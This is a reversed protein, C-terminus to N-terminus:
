LLSPLPLVFAEDAAKVNSFSQTSVDNIQVRASSLAQDLQMTLSLKAAMMARDTNVIGSSAVKGKLFDKLDSTEMLIKKLDSNSLNPNADTLLAAVNAVFPSAQSTGSVTLTQNGPIASLIGVGPAAVDVMTEGYNSFSAIKQYALTAAVTITNPMRLNAPSTPLVDNNMGDNGAAIVFLTDKAANPMAKSAEVAQNVFYASYTDLEEETPERRLALKLLTPMIMVKVAHTSTGFSCNAVRAKGKGVYQGITGLMKSQQTALGKLAMKLVADIKSDVGTFQASYQDFLKKFQRAKPSIPPKTPIIKLVMVEALDANKATIGAVHTGHVFNGFTGLEAILQQNGRAATMWERDSDTAEGKMMRTQVEFFKYVDASFTGLYKKDYLKNNNEAFNWGNVDDILGNDDNDVADDIDKANFWKKNKLDNHSLDTGSDIVAIKAAQVSGGLLALVSFLKIMNM